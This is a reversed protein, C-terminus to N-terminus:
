HDHHYMFIVKFYKENCNFYFEKKLKMFIILGIPHTQEKLEIGVVLHYRYSTCFYNLVTIM